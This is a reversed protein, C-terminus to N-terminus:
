PRPACDSLTLQNISCNMSNDSTSEGEELIVRGVSFPPEKPNPLEMADKALMTVVTPMTPRDAPNPQLCLLAIHICKIVESTTSSKELFPDMLMIVNGECWLRWAYTVLNIGHESVYLGMNRKGSIIELILVGFSFVDSKVSFIGKMAYEPSMYGITGAIRRTNAPQDKGFTRALGFDSIKPTMDYDLLINSAKLDRHIVPLTSDQHLYLLGKAVGIIINKRINWLLQTRNEMDFLHFDLSGNPMYEYVLLKENGEFCCGLLKVLNRHQLKAIFTAENKLEELGRGTNRSLRKVAINRGDPLIGKYVTGSGGKGIKCQDSFNFTIDQLTSLPFMALDLEMTDKNQVSDRTLVPSEEVKPGDKAKKYRCWLIFCSPLAITVLGCIVSIIVIKSRGPKSAPSPQDLSVDLPSDAFRMACVAPVSVMWWARWGRGRCNGSFRDILKVLCDHCGKLDRCQVSGYRKVSDSIRFVTAKFMLSLENVQRILIRMNEDAYRCENEDLPESTNDTFIKLNIYSETVFTWYQLMCVDYAIQGYFYNQCHRLIQESANAVCSKCRSPSVYNWCFSEGYMSESGTQHQYRGSANHFGNTSHSTLSSLLATLDGQLGEYAPHPYECSSSWYSLEAATPLCLWWWLFLFIGM